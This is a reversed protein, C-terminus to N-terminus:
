FIMENGDEAGDVSGIWEAFPVAKKGL